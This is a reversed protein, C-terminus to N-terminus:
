VRNNEDHPEPPSPRTLIFSAAGAMAIAQIALIPGTFGAALSILLALAMGIVAGRKAKPSIARHKRWAALSPGFRPHSALWNELRESGRAFCFAALIVFPTTPLVPLVIGVIGIALSSLGAGIWFLRVINWKM